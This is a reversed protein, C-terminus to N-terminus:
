RIPGEARAADLMANLDDDPILWVALAGAKFLEDVLSETMATNATLMRKYRDVIMRNEPSM